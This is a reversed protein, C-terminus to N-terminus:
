IITVILICLINFYPPNVGTGVVCSMILTTKSSHDNTRHLTLDKLEEVTHLKKTRPLFWLLEALFVVSLSSADALEAVTTFNITSNMTSNNYICNDPIELLMRSIISYLFVKFLTDLQFAGKSFGCFQLEIIRRFIFLQEIM